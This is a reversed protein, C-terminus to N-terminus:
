MRQSAFSGTQDMNIDHRQTLACEFAFLWSFQLIGGGWFFFIDTIAILIQEALIHRSFLVQLLVQFYYLFGEQIM